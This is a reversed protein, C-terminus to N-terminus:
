TTSRRRFLTHLLYLFRIPEKATSTGNLWSIRKCLFKEPTVLCPLTRIIRAPPEFSILRHHLDRLSRSGGSGPRGVVVSVLHAGAPARSANSHGGAINGALGRTGKERGERARGPRPPPKPHHPTSIRHNCWRSIEQTGGARASWGLRSFEHNRDKVRDSVM